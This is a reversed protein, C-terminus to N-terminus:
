SLTSHHYQNRVFVEVKPVECVGYPTSWFADQQAAEGDRPLGTLTRAFDYDVRSRIGHSLPSPTLGSPHM